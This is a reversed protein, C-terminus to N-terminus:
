ALGKIEGTNKLRLPIYIFEVAKVPEIAVDLYLENRDIRSPTNNSTDCVVIYDYLARQGVLELLLSEAAGKLEDRTIKDNPEFVYPKALQAFQRRLYIVLRAVNIRDLASANKARTYQGYNVLGTGTIFTIPNVKVGALTDRQGNNLAVSQFEGESTVYGVATANTIGGRRTGAPAFWPYSVNDNLAITRLMMHSPPVVINNGLNDSTYGWPYFFGLYEDSSVLGQDNDEVAGATNKGWNNLSTADATLRAPTDGVIFATLGRDYNLGVLEGVLEPYGPCALLNFIRSEEDRLQQNGNVLAQLEQVIVKRQAKRGFTGAGNDQNGSETVWRHPYYDAMNAGGQRENDANVDVKNRVFKKVNFGSRRLNWLLMGRPYLAPDPADFDLFDSTLLDVISSATGTLGDTNWRADHFVIGDETTQDGTDVLIWKGLNVNYKHLVPYHELDSTDVWLDGNVLNTGDSQTKPKTASVIPGKPDTKEDNASAWFPSSVTSIGSNAEYQYGVWTDGNNVLIDVEDVMSSYWLQGDAAETTPATASATIDAYPSWLSAVFEEAGENTYFNATGLGAMTVPDITFPTFMDAIATGVHDTLYIDGGDIHRLMVENTSAIKSAVIKSTVPSGNFTVDALASSLATLFGDIGESGTFTVSLSDTLTDKGKVTEKIYFTNAGSTAFEPSSKSVIETAGATKRAYVKFDATPMGEAINTKVFLAGQVLNLGGGTPDLGKLAAASTAYLPASKEVWGGTSANYVKIRWRSGLNPETTKIWVSGTPYGEVTNSNDTRKFTPVQTHPKIALEPAYYTGATLGLKTCSTNSVAISTGTSYLELRQNIIAARVGPVLVADPDNGSLSDSTDLATNIDHVLTSLGTHGTFDYPAGDVTITLVDGALLSPNPVTGQATPWSAAWADSGVEVWTGAPTDTKAKKFYLTYVSSVYVIAYDGVAGVSDKPAGTGTNIKASDTIVLPIVNSFTQGSATTAEASNWQFLGFKTNATDFWYQGDEPAGAPASSKADLQSLDIDARVVYARNSVGLYSYAAQLGYENQEGAHIPNNNGDTKFVPTGFTDALDKQSTLLYIKGANAKLTGPATGTSSGNAKNEASAVVILPTTGPAAPTYFSEDIVTVSVGPSSLQAMNTIETFVHEQIYKYTKPKKTYIYVRFFPCSLSLYFILGNHEHPYLGAAM